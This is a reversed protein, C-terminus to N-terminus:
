EAPEIWHELIEIEVGDHPPGAYGPWLEPMAFRVRYLVGRPGDVRGYASEEPNIEVSLVREIVGTKGRCYYPTRLYGPPYDARIRVRQEPAFKAAV